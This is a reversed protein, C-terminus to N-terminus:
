KGGSHRWLEPTIFDMGWLGRQAERALTETAIYAPTYRRYALAFGRLVLESAINLGKATCTGLIRDYSDRDTYTCSVTAGEVLEKMYATAIAGCRVEVGWWRCTQDHEPADIGHLRVQEGAILLSDGDIVLAEGEIVQSAWIPSELLTIPIFLFIILLATRFRNM